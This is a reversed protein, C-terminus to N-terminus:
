LPVPKPNKVGYDRTIMESFEAMFKSARNMVVQTPWPNLKFWTRKIIDAVVNACKSPIEAIEIWGTAPDIMTACWLDTDDKSNPQKFKYPGILDVCLKDRPEAKAEKGPLHDYKSNHTRQITQCTVCKSCVNHFMATLGRWWFHQKITM